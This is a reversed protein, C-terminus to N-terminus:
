RLGAVKFDLSISGRRNSLRERIVASSRECPHRCGGAAAHPLNGLSCENHDFAEFRGQGRPIVFGLCQRGDYVSVLPALPARAKKSIARM